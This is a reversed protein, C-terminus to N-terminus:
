FNVSGIALFETDFRVTRRDTIPESLDIKIVVANHIEEFPALEQVQLLLPSGFRKILHKLNNLFFLTIIRMTYIRLM